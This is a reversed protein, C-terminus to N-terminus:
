KNKAINEPLADVRIYVHVISSDDKATWVMRDATFESVIYVHRWSHSEFSNDYRGWIANDDEYIDYEGTMVSTVTSTEGINSYRTFTHEPRDFEIYAFTGDALPGGDLEQLQWIGSINYFNLQLYEDAASDDKACSGASLVAALAAIAIQFFRKM